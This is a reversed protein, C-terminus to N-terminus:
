DEEGDLWRLLADFNWIPIAHDFEKRHGACEIIHRHDTEATLESLNYNETRETIFVPEDNSVGLRKRVADALSGGLSRRVFTVENTPDSPTLSELEDTGNDESTRSIIEGSDMERRMQDRKYMKENIERMEAKSKGM